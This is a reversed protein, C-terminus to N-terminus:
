HQEKGFLRIWAKRSLHPILLHLPMRLYHSRMYLMWRAVATWRDDCSPHDPMLARLFLADMLIMNGTIGGAKEMKRLVNSLGQVNLILQLYRLAYYVPKQLGLQWARDALSLRTDDDLVSVLRELDVLDRLGHEFEGDYFLHTASHIIRDLPSLVKFGSVDGVLEVASELLLKPDPCAFATRPLINHHLDIVSGRKVHRLPPIEHMWQRYYKQDYVNSEDCLWGNLMLQKEFVPIADFPVMLDIDSFLRGKHPPLQAAAYAAGKLLVPSDALGALAKKLRNIEWLFDRYQKDAKVKASELHRMVEVPLQGLLNEQEALYYLRGTLKSRAAQRVLLDWQRANLTALSQEARLIQVLLPRSSNM